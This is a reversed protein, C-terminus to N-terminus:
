KKLVIFPDCENQNEHWFSECEIYKRLFTKMSKRNDQKEKMIKKINWIDANKQLARIEDVNSAWLEISQPFLNKVKLRTSQVWEKM